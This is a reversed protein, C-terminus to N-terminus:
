LWFRKNKPMEGTFVTIASEFRERWNITSYAIERKDKSHFVVSGALVTAGKLEPNGLLVWENPYALRIEKITLVEMKKSNQAFNFGNGNIFLYSRKTHKKSKMDVRELDGDRM